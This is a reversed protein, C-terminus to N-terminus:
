KSLHATWLKRTIDSVTLGEEIARIKIRKYLDEEIDANLRKKKVGTDKIEELIKAKIEEGKSPRKSTLTM